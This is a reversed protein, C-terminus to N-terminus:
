LRLDFYINQFFLVSHITHDTETTQSIFFNNRKIENEINSVSSWVLGVRIRKKVGLKRLWYQQCFNSIDIYRKQLPINEITTKFIMPLRMLPCYFDIDEPIKDEYSIM